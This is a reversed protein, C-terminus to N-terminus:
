IMTEITYDFIQLIVNTSVIQLEELLTPIPPLRYQENEINGLDLGLGKGM